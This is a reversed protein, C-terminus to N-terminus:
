AGKVTLQIAVTKRIAITPQIRQLAKVVAYQSCYERDYSLGESANDPEPDSLYDNRCETRIWDHAKRKSTFEIPNGDADTKLKWGMGKFLIWFM